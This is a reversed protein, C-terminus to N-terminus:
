NAVNNLADINQVLENTIENADVTNDNRFLLGRSEDKRKKEKDKKKKLKM